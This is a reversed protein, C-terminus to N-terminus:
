VRDPRRAVPVEKHATGGTDTRVGSSIVRRKEIVVEDRSWAPPETLLWPRAAQPLDGM